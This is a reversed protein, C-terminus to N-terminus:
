QAIANIDALQQKLSELLQQDGREDFYVGTGHSQHQLAVINAPLAQYAMQLPEILAAPPNKDLWFWTDDRKSRLALLPTHPLRSQKQQLVYLACGQLPYQKALADPLEAPKIEVTFGLRSALQRLAIIQKQRESPILQMIPWAAMGMCLLAIAIGWWM